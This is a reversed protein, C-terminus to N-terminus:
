VTGELGVAGVHAGVMSDAHKATAETINAERTQITGTRQLTWLTTGAFSQTVTTLTMTLWAIIPRIASQGDRTGIMAAIATVAHVAFTNAERSELTGITRFNLRTRIVAASVADTTITLAETVWTVIALIAVVGLSARITASTM